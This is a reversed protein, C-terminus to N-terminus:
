PRSTRRGSTPARSEYGYGRVLWHLALLGAGVAVGPHTAALDRAARALTKPDTPSRAALALAEDYVGAQKAAAFWKGEQGPTTAVLDHLIEDAAKHPCM